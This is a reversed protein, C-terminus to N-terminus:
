DDTIARLQTLLRRLDRWGRPGLHREWEAEVQAVIEASRAVLEAGRASVVVLRARADGPDPIREVYGAKELADVLFGASQKTIQAQGALDTLRSGSAAIRQFVKAQAITFDTHGAEQLATFIRREMARYPIFLLLGTNLSDEESPTPPAGPSAVADKM